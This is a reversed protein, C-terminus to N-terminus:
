KKKNLATAIPDFKGIPVFKPKETEASKTKEDEVSKSAVQSTTDSYEIGMLASPLAEQIDDLQILAYIFKSNNMTEKEAKSIFEEWESNDSFVQCGASWPGVCVGVGKTSSRHIQMGCNEESIDAPKYTEFKTVGIPYRGVKIKEAEVMM